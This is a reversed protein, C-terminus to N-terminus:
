ISPSTLHSPRRNFCSSKRLDTAGPRASERNRPRERGEARGRGKARERDQDAEYDSLTVKKWSERARGREAISDIQQRHPNRSDAFHHLLQVRWSHSRENEM